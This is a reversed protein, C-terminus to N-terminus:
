DKQEPKKASMGITVTKAKDGEKSLASAPTAKADASTSSCCAKASSSKAENSNCSAKDSSCKAADSGCAKMMEPTCSAEKSPDSASANVVPTAKTVDATNNSQAVVFTCAAFAISITFLVKRM